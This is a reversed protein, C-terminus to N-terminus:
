GQTFIDEMALNIDAYVKAGLAALSAQKGADATVGVKRVDIRLGLQTLLKGAAEVALMGGSTDEFVTFTSNDLFKLDEFKIVEPKQAAYLLSEEVKWGSAALIVALAHVWSPKRLSEVGRGTKESLWDIEGRGFIPFDEVGVLEAGFKADPDKTFGQPGESPRMTMIGAGNGEKAAWRMVKNAMTQTLLPEDHLKLYSDTSFQASNQYIATYEKSGLILEQFWNLTPSQEISESENVLAKIGDVSVGYKRGLDDLSAAGRKIPSDQIPQAAIAEFLDDLDLATHGNLNGNPSIGAMKQLIMVALCLASSHWESSIGLSEFQSIQADTLWAEGYGSKMGALRVTEKLAHHYGNPTLLVGDMDFIFLNM